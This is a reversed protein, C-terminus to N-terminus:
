RRKRWRWVILMIKGNLNGKGCYRENKYWIGGFKKCDIYLKFIM